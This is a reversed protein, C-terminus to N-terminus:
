NMGAVDIPGDMVGNYANAERLIEDFNDPRQREPNRAAQVLYVAAWLRSYLEDEIVRQREKNPPEGVRMECFGENMCELHMQAEILLANADM